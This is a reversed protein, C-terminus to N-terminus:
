ATKRWSGIRQGQRERLGGWASALANAPTVGARPVGRGRSRSEVAAHWARVLATHEAQARVQDALALRRKKAANM